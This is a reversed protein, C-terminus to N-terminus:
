NTENKCVNMVYRQYNLKYTRNHYSTNFYLNTGLGAFLEKWFFSTFKADRDSILMKIIRHLRFLVKMFIETINIV